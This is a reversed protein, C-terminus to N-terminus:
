IRLRVPFEDLRLGAQVFKIRVKHHPEDPLFRCETRAGKGDGIRTAQHLKQRFGGSVAATRRARAVGLPPKVIGIVIHPDSTGIEGPQEFFKVALRFKGHGGVVRAIKPDLIPKRFIGELSEPANRSLM